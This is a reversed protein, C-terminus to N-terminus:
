GFLRKLIFDLGFYGVVLIIILTLINVLLKKFVDGIFNKFGM